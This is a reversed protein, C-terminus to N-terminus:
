GAPGLRYTAHVAVSITVPTPESVDVTPPGEQESAYAKLSMPMAVDDGFDESYGDVGPDSISEIAEVEMGLADAFDEAAARAAAVAGKRAQRRVEEFTSVVWQLWQLSVGDASALYGVLVRVTALDDVEVMVEGAVVRGSHDEDGHWSRPAKVVGQLGHQSLTERLLRVATNYSETAALDTAGEGRVTIHLQARDPTVEVGSTGRVHAVTM